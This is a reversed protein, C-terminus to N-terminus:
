CCFRVLTCVTIELRLSLIETMYNIFIEYIMMDFLFELEVPVSRNEEDFLACHIDSNAGVKLSTCLSGLNQWPYVKSSNEKEKFSRSARFRRVIVCWSGGGSNVRLNHYGNKGNQSIEVKQTHDADM